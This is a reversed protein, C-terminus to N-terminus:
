AGKGRSMARWGFYGTLGAIALAIVGSVCAAWAPGMSAEFGKYVAFILLGLGVVGILAAVIILALGLGVAAVVARLQRGEAEALDAVKVVFESLVKLM